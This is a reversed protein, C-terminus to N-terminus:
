VARRSSPALGEAVLVQQVFQTKANSYGDRDDRYRGALDDKLAAYAQRVAADQRLVDRFVILAHFNPHDHQIVHLHHTRAEPRPRLFWMRYDRNPDDPWFLWGAQELLPIAERAVAYDQVPALMDIIPKARLGPVSTSGMHEIGSALWPKLITAVRAQQEAFRAPWNPDYATLEIPQDAM